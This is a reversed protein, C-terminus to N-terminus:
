QLPVNLTRLLAVLDALATSAQAIARNLAAQSETTSLGSTESEKLIIAADLVLLQANKYVLYADKVKQQDKLSPKGVPIYDNWASLAAEVTIRSSDSVNAAIKAPTSKCGTNVVAPFALISALLIYSLYKRMQNLPNPNM